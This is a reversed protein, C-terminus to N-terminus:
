LLCTSFVCLVLHPRLSTFPGSSRHSNGDGGWFHESGWKTLTQISCEKLLHSQNLWWGIPFLEIRWGRGGEGSTLLSASFELGRIMSEDKRSGAFTCVRFYVCEKLIFFGRCKKKWPKKIVFQEVQYSEEKWCNLM